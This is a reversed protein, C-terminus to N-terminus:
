LKQYAQIISLAHSTWSYRRAQSLRLTRPPALEPEVLLRLLTTVWASVDACRCYVVARGGVERLVPLDSAVVVSGCALAEIVPLGFGESDSPQLVLRAQRYLAALVQRNLGRLQVVSKGLDHRKIQARQDPTWEGGVQLLCLNGHAQRVAAFVELLVDIRKRPICSGVHMLYPSGPLRALLDTVQAQTPGDRRTSRLFAQSAAGAPEVPESSFEEAIGYPAQVLRAPDVLGFQEMERRVAQTSYFVIAARQLGRLTQQAMRRFWIPRRCREPELLCRFADLDHCYVGTQRAPLDNVLRAYSHDAVHFCDFRRRLVPLVRPYDWFRNLLRDANHALRTDGVFPLRRMREIMPPCIRTAELNSVPASDLHQLLMEAVLDMSPWDEELLDCLVALHM